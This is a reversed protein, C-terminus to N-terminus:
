PCFTIAYNIGAMCTFTSTKDDYAYSYAQPCLRKFFNSYKTPGCTKPTGYYETCCYIPRHFATCASKCGITGDDTNKVSFARPCVANIDTPCGTSYCGSGDQPTVLVPLNFGDVISVDYFDNGFEALNFQVLTAPPQGGAGDCELKGSGCDGSLCTFNGAANSCVFRSWIRGSWPASINFNIIDLASIEFGLSVQQGQGTQTAPWITYPCNNKITFNTSCAGNFFHAAILLVFLSRFEM